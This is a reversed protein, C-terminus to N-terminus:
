LAQKVQSLLATFLKEAKLSHHTVVLKMRDVATVLRRFLRQRHLQQVGKVRKWVPGVLGVKLTATEGEKEVAKAVIGGM